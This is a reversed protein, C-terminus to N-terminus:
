PVITSWASTDGSEFGDSFIPNDGIFSAIEAADLFAGAWGCGAYVLSNVDDQAGAFTRRGVVLSNGPSWSGGIGDSLDYVETSTLFTSWGGGGVVLKGEFTWMQAGGRATTLSPLLAWTDLAPDYRMVDATDGSNYLGAYFVYSGAGIAAGYQGAFPASAGTTWRTGATALPDYIYTTTTTAVGDNGGFLYLKGNHETCASAFRAAPLPDTLDVTWIDLGPDYIQLDTIGSTGTYGGPVYVKDDIVAACLNSVGTLMPMRTNSWTNSVPDYEQVYGNRAGGSEEGGLVFFKGDVVAGAPRSVGVPSPPLSVWPSARGETAGVTGEPPSTAVTIGNDAALDAAGCPPAFAVSWAVALVVLISRFARM